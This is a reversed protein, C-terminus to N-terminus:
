TAAEEEDAEQQSAQSTPDTKNLWIDPRFFNLTYIALAVMVGDLWDISSLTILTNRAFISSTGSDHHSVRVM